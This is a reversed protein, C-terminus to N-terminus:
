GAEAPGGFAREIADLLEDLGELTEPVALRFVPRQGVLSLYRELMARKRASDELSFCYAQALLAPYAESAALPGLIPRGSAGSRRGLICVVALPASRRGDPGEADPRGPLQAAREGLGFFTASAPRLRVDFPLAWASIVPGSVDIAVADDAWLAHGRRHLGYAITSKGSQSAGCLAVIGQPMLVASAHLVEHGRAHLVLPLASHRYARPLADPAIGPCPAAVVRANEGNFRFTAVGPLELWYRGDEARCRAVIRGAADRWVDGGAVSSSSLVTAESEPELIDLWPLPRVAGGARDMLWSRRVHARRGLPRGSTRPTGECPRARM